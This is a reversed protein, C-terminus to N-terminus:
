EGPQARQLLDTPRYPNVYGGRSANYRSLPMDYVTGTLPDKQRTIGLNAEEWGQSIHDMVNNRYNWSKMITDGSTNPNNRGMMITNSGAIAAGGTPKISLALKQLM